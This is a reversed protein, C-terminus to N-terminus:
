PCFTLFLGGCVTLQQPILELILVHHFQIFHKAQLSRGATLLNGVSAGKRAAHEAQLPAKANGSLSFGRCRKRKHM